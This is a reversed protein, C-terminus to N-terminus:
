RDGDADYIGMQEGLTRPRAQQARVDAQVDAIVQRARERAAIDEDSLPAAREVARADGPLAYNGPAGRDVGLLRADEAQRFKRAKTQDAAASAKAAERAPRALAAGVQELANHGDALTFHTATEPGTGLMQELARAENV